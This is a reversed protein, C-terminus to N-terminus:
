FVAQLSLHLKGDMFESIKTLAYVVKIVGIPSELAVGAGFGQKWEGDTGLNAIYGCDYFPFFFSNGSYVRFEINSWGVTTGNFEDEWYGRLTKAGGLNFREYEPIDTNVLKYFNISNFFVKKKETGLYTDFNTLIREIGEDNIATKVRYDVGPIIRTNFEMGTICSYQSWQEKSYDFWEGGAGINFTLSFTVPIDFLLEAQKKTYTTDEKRYLFNGTAGIKSNFLWPEKHEIELNSSLKGLQNWSINTFRGTGFLNPSRFEFLGALEKEQYGIVGELTNARKEKITIIVTDENLPEIRVSDIFELNDIRNRAKNINLQNFFEGKKIGSNRIIVYDKTSNKGTVIIKNIRSIQGETIRLEFNVTDDLFEFNGPKIRCFPYGSNEYRKIIAEIDNLFVEQSLVAGRKMKLLSRIERKKFVRNGTIKIKGVKFQMGEEIIITDGSTKVEVKLFGQQKYLNIIESVGNKYATSIQENTFFRNGAIATNILVLLTIMTGIKLM